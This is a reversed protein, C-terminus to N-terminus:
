DQQQYRCINHVVTSPFELVVPNDVNNNNHHFIFNNFIIIKGWNNVSGLRIVVM